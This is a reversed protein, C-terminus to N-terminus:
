QKAPTERSHRLPAAAPRAEGPRAIGIAEALLVKYKAVMDPGNLKPSIILSSNLMKAADGAKKRDGKEKAEQLLCYAANYMVEFYEPPKKRM